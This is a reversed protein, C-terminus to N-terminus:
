RYKVKVVSSRLSGSIVVIADGSGAARPKNRIVSSQREEIKDEVEFGRPVIVLVSSSTALIELELRFGSSGEYSSLDLRVNSSRLRLRYRGSKVWEGVKRIGSSVCDLEVVDADRPEATNPVTALSTGLSAAEAELSTDDECVTIRSVAAEFSALDMRGHSFAESIGRILSDKRKELATDAM